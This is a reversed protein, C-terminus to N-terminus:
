MYTVRHSKVVFIPRQPVDSTPGPRLGLLQTLTPHHCSNFTPYSPPLFVLSVSPSLPPSFSNCLQTHSQQKEDFARLLATCRRHTAAAAMGEAMALNRVAGQIRRGRRGM